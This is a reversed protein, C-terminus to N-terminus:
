SLFPVQSLWCFFKRNTIAGAAIAPDYLFFV